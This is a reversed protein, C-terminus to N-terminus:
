TQDLQFGPNGTLLLDDGYHLELERRRVGAALAIPHEVRSHLRTTGVRRSLAECVARGKGTWTRAPLDLGSDRLNESLHAYGHRRHHLHM